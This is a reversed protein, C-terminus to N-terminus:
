ETITVSRAHSVDFWAQRLCDDSDEFNSRAEVTRCVERWMARVIDRVNSVANNEVRTVAWIWPAPAGPLWFPV